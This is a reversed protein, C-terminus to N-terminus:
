LDCYIHKVGTLQNVQCFSKFFNFLFGGITFIGLTLSRRFVWGKTPASGAATRSGKSLLVFSVTRPCPVIRYESPELGVPIHSTEIPTTFTQAEVVSQHMKSPTHVKRNRNKTRILM